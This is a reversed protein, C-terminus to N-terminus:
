DILRRMMKPTALWKLQSHGRPDGELAAVGAKKLALAPAGEPLGILLALLDSLNPNHGVLMLSAEDRATLWDRIQRAPVGPELVEALELRDSVGLVAATIEATRRARPLPSAVVRDPRDGWRELCEAVQKVRAEGVPTLPRDEDRVGATGHPVAIGHRLLYLRAM